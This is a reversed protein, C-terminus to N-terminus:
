NPEKAKTLVEKMAEVLKQNVTQALPIYMEEAERFWRKFKKRAPHAKPIHAWSMMNDLWDCAKIARTNLNKKMTKLFSQYKREYKNLETEDPLKKRTLNGVLQATKKGFKNRIEKLELETDEVADHLVAACIVNLDRMNLEEILLYAVRLGHIVYPGGEDREQDSHYKSALRYVQIITERDKESFNKLHKLFRKEQFALDIFKNM